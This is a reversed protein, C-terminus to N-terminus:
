DGALLKHLEKRTENLIAAAQKQQEPSASQAIDILVPGLDFASKAFKSNSEFINRTPAQKQQPTATTQETKLSANALHIKGAETIKFVKRDAKLKETLFEQAVLKATAKSVQSSTPVFSQGSALAIAAVLESINKSSDSIAALVAIEIKEDDPRVPETSARLDGLRNRGFAVLEEIVERFDFSSSGM